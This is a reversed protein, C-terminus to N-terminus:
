TRDYKKDEMLLDALCLAVACRVVEVARPVICADHRGKIQLTTNEKTLMDVTEQTAAISATPKLAARVILPMGNSIGGLVGGNHNSKYIIEGHEMSPADNAQSGRMGAIAFGTGFEVGKVAPISFLMGAVITELSDFMPDGLGAPMPAAICEVVGGISDLDSKALTVIEMMEKGARDDLVPFDKYLLGELDRADPQSNFPRDKVPGISYIHARVLIGSQELWQEAISGAFVLPATMRGSFHGGGRHDQFGGYKIYGTLDAHSPRPKYKLEDYDASHSDKNKIFGCLPTGTTCGNFFGSVIEVADTEKRATSYAASVPMRRKMAAHVRDLDIKLGAPLGNVVIGIAASHSEGFISIKINRGWVSSM